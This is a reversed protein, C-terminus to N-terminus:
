LCDKARLDRQRTESDLGATGRVGGSGIGVVLYGFLEGSAPATEDEFDTDSPDPDDSSACSGYFRAQIEELSGRIVQYAVAVPDDTWNLTTRGTSPDHGLALDIAGSPVGVNVNGPDPDCLDGSGDTDSDHQDTDALFPCLDCADGVGDRDFDALSRSFVTPCRDCTDGFEDGDADTQDPNPALPCNDVVDDYGDGDSDEASCFPLSAESRRFTAAGVVAGHNAQASSDAPNGQMRWWGRLAAPPPGALLACSAGARLEAASHAVSWIRIEDIEGRFSNGAQRSRGLWTEYTGPYSIPGDFAVPASDLLGDVYVRLDQGDWTGAVHVWRGMPVVTAGYAFPATAGTGVQLRLTSDPQIALFYGTLNGPNWRDILFQWVSSGVTRRVWAELTFAGVLNLSGNDPVAIHDDEGELRLVNAVVPAVDLTMTGPTSVVGQADEVEFTFHDQGQFGSEPTYQFHSQRPGGLTVSGHTPQDVIRFAKMGGDLDSGHLVEGAAGHLVAVTRGQAQPVQNPLTDYTFTKEIQSIGNLQLEVRWTGLSGSPPLTTILRWTSLGALDPHEYSFDQYVSDSPDTIIIRSVDGPHLYRLRYWFYHKTSPTQEYHHVDPPRFKYQGDVLPDVASMGTYALEVPRYIPHDQQERWLSEGVRCPGAHPEYFVGDKMVGFHLHAGKSQGSSGVLGLPQGEFVQQGHHVMVSWKKLHWYRSESGDEHTVFVVNSPESPATTQQDFYGDQAASVTGPAAALVFRGEAQEVFDLIGLDNGLHGNYTVPQCEYDLIGGTDDLDVYAAWVKWDPELLPLRFRTTIESPAATSQFDGHDPGPGTERDVVGTLIPGSVSNGDAPPVEAYLCGIVLWVVPLARLPFGLSNTWRRRDTTNCM